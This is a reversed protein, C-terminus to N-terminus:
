TGAGLGGFRIAGQGDKQLPSLSRPPLDRSKGKRFLRGFAGVQLAVEADKARIFHWFFGIRMWIDFRTSRREHEKGPGSAEKKILHSKKPNHDEGEM